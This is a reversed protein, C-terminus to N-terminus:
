PKPKRHKGIRLSSLDITLQYSILQQNSLQVRNNIYGIILKPKHFFFYTAEQIMIFAGGRTQM